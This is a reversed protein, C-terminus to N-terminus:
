HVLGLARAIAIGVAVAISREAAVVTKDHTMVNVAAHVAAAALSKVKAM